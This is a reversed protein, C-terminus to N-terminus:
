EESSLVDRNRLLVLCRVCARRVDPTLAAHHQLLLDALDQPFSATLDPYSPALQLHLWATFFCCSIHEAAYVDFHSATKLQIPISRSVQTVFGLLQEFKGANEGGSKAGHGVSGAGADAGIEAAYIRRLSQYHNWQAVFEDKYAEPERKLLNQLAPLNATHLLGRAKSRHTLGGENVMMTPRPEVM